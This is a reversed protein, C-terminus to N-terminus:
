EVPPQDRVRSLLTAALLNLAAIGLAVGTWGCSTFVPGFAAGIAAAGGYYAVLYLASAQARGTQARAAVWGTSVTHVAFFGSTFVIMGALDVVLVDPITLMLGAISTLAGCVAVRRRGFRAILGGTRSATVTGALYILFVLGIVGQPLNYPAALLRFGLYNYSATLGGMVLFSGLCLRRIGPERLHGGIAALHHRLELPAPRFNRSPPLLAVFAAAAVADLVVLVTLGVRWGGLEELASPVIRGLLGGVSTGAIYIGVAHATRARPAEEVIHATAVATVGAAAVGTLARFVLVQWYTPSLAAGLAFACAAIITIIMTRRRGLSEALSSIPLVTLAVAGTAASMSLSAMTEGFGYTHRIAPLVAQTMHLLSFTALGAALM